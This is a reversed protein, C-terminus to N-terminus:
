EPLDLSYVVLDERLQWGVRQWFGRGRQNDAFVMAHCKHIGTSALSDLAKRVIARGIGSGQLEAEVAVHYLYGRRGDSGCLVTAVIRGSRVACWSLGENHELFRALEGPNDASSLGVGPTDRWLRLCADTDDHLLPRVTCEHSNM